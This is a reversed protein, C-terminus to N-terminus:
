SVAADPHLAEPESAYLEIEAAVLEECAPCTRVHRSAAIVDDELADFIACGPQLRRVMLELALADRLRYRARHIIVKATQRTVGLAAAVEPPGLGLQTVMSVATADRASLGAVCGAVLEALEALEALEETSAGGTVPEDADDRDLSDVQRRGTLRQRDVVTHRAISMLWAHFSDPDRLTELRELAKVFVDQVLDAVTEPNNIGGRVVTTVARVNSRYLTAFAAADGTRALTVLEGEGMGPAYQRGHGSDGPDKREKGDLPRM